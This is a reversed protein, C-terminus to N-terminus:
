MDVWEEVTFDVWVKNTKQSIWTNASIFANMSLTPYSREGEADHVFIQESVRKYSIEGDANRTEIFDGLEYDIGYRFSSYQNVEGEFATYTRSNYLAAKGQQNLEFPVDTTFEDVDGQVLLVRREFGEVDPDVNDGYVTEVGFDSVVYAVNKAKEITTFETTNQLNDRDIAFIVPNVDTQRTTRDNGSYIDFYLESADFNRVLRFGLDYTGCVNTLVELVTKPEIRLNILTAPEPITGIPMVSGVTIFPIRDALSLIGARCIDDFVKRAIDGPTGTIDWTPAVVLNANSGRAIRDQLIAELSRGKVSLLYKGDDGTVDEVTEVIMVRWSTNCALLTGTLFQGRSERTSRLLLEFDGVSAFRETWILSEFKDVVQNRRLLSDLVYVEM